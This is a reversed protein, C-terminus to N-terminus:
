LIIAKILKFILLPYVLMVNSSIITFFIRLQPLKGNKDSIDNNMIQFIIYIYM